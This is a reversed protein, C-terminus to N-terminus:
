YDYWAGLGIHEEHENFFQYQQSMGNYYHMGCRFLQGSPGRWQWGNQVTFGGGYDNEERVFGNVAFFPTGRPGTPEPSCWDIGFQFQWPKSGGKLYFAWNAETYLRMDPCLWFAVALVLGDRAYNIRTAAPFTEQFEDGLHSSIHYYSFKGEWPGNRFTLPLGFRFDTSILDRDRELSLRPFAAGELDLQWGEPRLPDETGCRLLGVRGGLTIDWLWAQDREHVWHSAFRPEKASALYSKFMLGSPLVQWTWYNGPLVPGSWVPQQAPVNMDIWQPRDDSPAVVQAGAHSATPQYPDTTEGDFYGAQRVDGQGFSSATFDGVAVPGPAPRVQPSKVTNPPMARIQAEAPSPALGAVLWSLAFCVLTNTPCSM